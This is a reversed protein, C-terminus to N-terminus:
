GEGFSVSSVGPRTLGGPNGDIPKGSFGVFSSPTRLSSAGHGPHTVLAEARRIVPSADTADGTKSKSKRVKPVFRPQISSM